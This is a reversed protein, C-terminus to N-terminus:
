KNKIYDILQGLNIREPYFLSLEDLNFDLYDILILINNHLYDVEVIPWFMLPINTNYEKLNSISICDGKKVVMNLTAVKSNVYIQKNILSQRLEFINKFFGLKCLLIELKFLPKIMIDLWLLDVYSSRTKILQKFDYTSLKNQFFISMTQKLVLSNKYYKKLRQERSASTFYLNNVRVVKKKRKFQLQKLSRQLLKWKPRKFKLIRKYPLVYIFAKLNCFKKYKKINFNM